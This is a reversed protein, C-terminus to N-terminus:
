QYSMTFESEHTSGAFCRWGNRLGGLGNTTPLSPQKITEFFFCREWTNNYQIENKTVVEYEVKKSVTSTSTQGTTTVSANGKISKPEKKKKDKEYLGIVIHGNKIEWPTLVDHSILKWTKKNIEKRTFKGASIDVIEPTSTPIKLVGRVFFMESGGSNSGFFNDLQKVVRVENIYVTYDKEFNPCATTIIITTDKDRTENGDKEIVEDVEKSKVIWVAHTEAYDDNVMVKTFSVIAGNSMIPEFGLNEDVEATTNYTLTPKETGDWNESYPFYIFVVDQQIFDLLEQYAVNAYNQAFLYNGALFANEFAQEFKMTSANQQFATINSQAPNLLDYIAISEDEDEYMDSQVGIMIEQTVEKTKIVETLIYSIHKCLAERQEDTYTNSSGSKNTRIKSAKEPKLEDPLKQCAIALIGVLVFM